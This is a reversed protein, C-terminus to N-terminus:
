PLLLGEIVARFREVANRPRAKISKVVSPAHPSLLRLGVVGAQGSLQEPLPTHM